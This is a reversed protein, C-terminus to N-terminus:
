PTRSSKERRHPLSSAPRRHCGPKATTERPDPVSEHRWPNAKEPLALLSPRCASVADVVARPGLRGRSVALSFGWSEVIRLPQEASSRLRAVARPSGDHQTFAGGGHGSALVVARRREQDAAGLQGEVEIGRLRDDGAAELDLAAFAGFSQ